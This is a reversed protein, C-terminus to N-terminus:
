RNKFVLFGGIIAPIIGAIFLTIMSMSFIKAPIIGLLGFLKIMTAERIGLGSITIPIQGILTAIPLIALFYLFSINIGLSIGVFFTITYIVVWNIVHFLFFLIFYKKKPMDKYFLHFENKVKGKMKKPILRYFVKLISKSRYEKRFIILLFVLFTLGILAFYFYNISILNRFTFSFVIALFVLSFLDMMKDLVYNSVGKGLHQNNYKKLYGARMIHGVKSPTIFGYFFCMLNIRFAEWFPVKIKQKHAIVFWKLTGTILAAFVFFMAVLLFFLNAKTIEDIIQSIGVRILIYIFLGIGIIPLYRKIKM